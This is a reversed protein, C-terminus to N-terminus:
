IVGCFLDPTTLDLLHPPYPVDGFHSIVQQAFLYCLVVMRIVTMHSTAGYQQFWLNRNSSLQPALFENIM